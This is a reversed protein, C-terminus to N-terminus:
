VRNVVLYQAWGFAAWAGLSMRTNGQEYRAHDRMQEGIWPLYIRGGTEVTFGHKEFLDAIMEAPWADVHTHDDFFNFTSIDVGQEALKQKTPLKKALPHPWEVYLRGGSRLKRSFFEISSAPDQMHEIFHACVIADFKRGSFVDPDEEFNKIEYADYLHFHVGVDLSLAYLKLDPREIMPWRKQIAFSGDGAGVDLVAANTPLSKFFINRPLILNYIQDLVVSDTAIDGEAEFWAETLECLRDSSLDDLAPISFM